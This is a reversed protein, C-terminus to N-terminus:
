FNFNLGVILFRGTINTELDLIINKVLIDFLSGHSSVLESHNQNKQKVVACVVIMVMSFIFNICKMILQGQKVGVLQRFKFEQCAV